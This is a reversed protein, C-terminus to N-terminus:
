HGFVHGGLQQRGDAFPEGVHRVVRVGLVARDDDDDVVLEGQPDDVVAPPEAVRRPARGPM